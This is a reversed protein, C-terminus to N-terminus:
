LPLSSSRKGQSGARVAAIRACAEPDRVASSREFARQGTVMEYLLAGFSFIDSRAEVSKGEAQEPSMSAATGLITGQTATTTAATASPDGSELKETLKAIRFDLVKVGGEETVMINAPKLDRHIIGAAHAKAFADAIEIAYRLAKTLDLGGRPILKDLTKGPVYEM